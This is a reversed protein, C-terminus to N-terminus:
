NKRRLPQVLSMAALRIRGPAKLYAARLLRRLVRVYVYHYIHGRLSL